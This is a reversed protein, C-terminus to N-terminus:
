VDHSCGHDRRYMNSSAELKKMLIDMKAAIIDIGGVQHVGRTCPQLCDGEWGQNAVMKEIL